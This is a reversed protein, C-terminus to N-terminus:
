DYGDLRDDLCTAFKESDDIREEVSDPIEDADVGPIDELKSSLDGIGDVARDWLGGSEDSESAEACEEIIQTTNKVTQKGTEITRNAGQRYDGYQKDAANSIADRDLESSDIGLTASKSFVYSAASAQSGRYAWHIESLLMGYGKDGTVTRVKMLSLKNTTYRTAAFSSKFFVQQQVLAAEIGFSATAIYFREISEDDDPNVACAASYM